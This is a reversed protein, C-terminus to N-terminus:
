KASPRSFILRECYLDATIRATADTGSEAKAPNLRFIGLNFLTIRALVEKLDPGLLEISGNKEKSDGNNGHLVFDDFWAQWSDLDAASFTVKLNPVAIHIVPKKAAAAGDPEVAEVIRRFILPEIRSVRSTELGDIALRFNSLVWAKKKAQVVAARAGTPKVNETLVPALKVTIHGAEKSTGDLAPFQTESILADTFSLERVVKQTADITAISGSRRQPIGSWWAAIWEYISDEMGLGIELVLEEYSIAGLHKKRFLVNELSEEIVEAVAAGGEASRLTGCDQDGIKLALTTTQFQRVDPMPFYILPGDAHAPLREADPSRTLPEARSAWGKHTFKVGHVIPQLSSAYPPLFEM